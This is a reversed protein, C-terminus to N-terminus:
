RRAFIARIPPQNPRMVLNDTAGRAVAAQMETGFEVFAVDSRNPVARVEDFGPFRKYLNSLEGETVGEPIGQLFLTKNPLGADIALNPNMASNSASPNLMVPLMAPNKAMQALLQRRTLRPFRIREMKAQDRRRREQQLTGEKKALWFSKSRAYRVIMTKQFLRTSQLSKIAATAEEVHGFEIWAQGKVLLSRKCTVRRVRGFPKFLKKLAPVLSYKPNLRDDLNQVYVTSSPIGVEISPIRPAAPSVQNPVAGPITPLRPMGVHPPPLMGQMPMMGPQMMGMQPFMMNPSPPFPGNTTAGQPFIM